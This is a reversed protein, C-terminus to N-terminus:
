ICDWVTSNLCMPTPNNLSWKQIPFDNVRKMATIAWPTGWWAPGWCHAPELKPPWYQPYGGYVRMSTVLQTQVSCSSSLDWHEEGVPLWLLSSQLCQHNNGDVDFSTVICKSPPFGATDSIVRPATILPLSEQPLLVCKSTCSYISTEFMACM